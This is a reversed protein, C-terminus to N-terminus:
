QTAESRSDFAAVLGMMTKRINNQVAKVAAEVDRNQLARLIDRHDSLAQRSGGPLNVYAARYRAAKGWLDTILDCLFIRQSARYITLHFERNLVLLEDHQQQETLQEMKEVLRNLEAMEVSTLNDTAFRTAIGELAERITYIDVLEDRSIPTVFVGRRPVIHVLEEAQLRRLAERIPVVSMGLEEAMARQDIRTGPKLKGIVIDHRITEFAGSALTAPLRKLTTSEIPLSAVKM